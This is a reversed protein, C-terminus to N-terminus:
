RTRNYAEAWHRATTVRESKRDLQARHALLRTEWLVLAAHLQALRDLYEAYAPHARIAALEETSAETTALSVAAVAAQLSAVLPPDLRTTVFAPDNAQRLAGALTESAAHIRDLLVAPM